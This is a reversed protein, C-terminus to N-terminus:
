KEGIEDIELAAPADTIIDAPSEVVITKNHVREGDVRAMGDISIQLMTEQDTLWKWIARPQDAVSHRRRPHTPVAMSDIPERLGRAGSDADPAVSQARATLTIAPSARYAIPGEILNHDGPRLNPSRRSPSIVTQPSPTVIPPAPGGVSGREVALQLVDYQEDALGHCIGWFHHDLSAPSRALVVTRRRKAPSRRQRAELVV